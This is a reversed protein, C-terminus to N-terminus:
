PQQGATPFPRVRYVIANNAEFAVELEDGVMQEFAALGDESSYYDPERGDEVDGVITLREVDSVVIYEVAYRRLLYHKRELDSSQYIERVDSVRIGTEAGGRQQSQHSDWGLVTPLGTASSIRAGGGRYAGISAELIVPVGDIERNMWEIVAADGSFDIIDGAQNQITGGDMWANGSLSPFQPTSEMRTGLRDPTAFLLYTLLPVGLLLAIAVPPVTRPLSFRNGPQLLPGCRYWFRHFLWLLALGSVVALLTWSQFFLKFVTNMREWDTGDLHDAIYILDTVMVLGSASAGSIGVLVASNRSRNALLMAIFASVLVASAAAVPRVLALAGAIAIFPAVMLLPFDSNEQKRGYAALNIILASAGALILGTLVFRVPGSSVGNVIAGVLYSGTALIAGFVLSTLRLQENRLVRPFAMGAVLLIPLLLGGFHLFWSSLETGSSTTEPSGTQAVFGEYFRWFLGYGVLGTAIAVCTSIVIRHRLDRTRRFLPFALSALLIVAATPGDWLNSVTLSGAAIGASLTWIVIWQYDSTATNAIWSYGIALVLVLVPAAILHPHLDGYLLTFYPFENIGFDVVRSSAWFDVEFARNRIMQRIPDLNGAVLVTAATLGGGAILWRQNRTQLVSRGLAVGLSFLGSATLGAVTSLSLQFAIEAPVGTLNWLFALLFFGYYYYNIAGDAFWPDYPPYEGTQAIAHIYATEMPKEGGFFPHWLDPYIARLTLVFGFGILFALLSGALIWRCSRIRGRWDLPLGIVGWNVLAFLVISSVALLPTLRAIEFSWLLWAIAGAGLMGLLPSFGVGFDDFRQFLRVAVPLSSVALSALGILWFLISVPPFGTLASSWIASENADRQGVPEALRLTPSDPYRQPIQPQAAARAFRLDIEQRSIDEVKRFIRVPPHDYVSFSEDAGLTNIRLSGFGPYNTAEHALEFGLKEEELLRYYASQVPYRWPSRPISHSLRQSALIIYDADNLFEAVYGVAEENPRDTYLDLGLYNYIDGSGAQLRVPLRDDWIEHTITSGPEVNEYIWGSAAVRPHTGTYVSMFMLAWILTVGTVLAIATVPLARLWLRPDMASSLWWISLQHGVILALPPVLPAAYRLFRAESSAIVCFYPIIWSLLLLYRPDRKRLAFSVGVATAIIAAVGFGPAIGWLVLNQIENIGSITGVFQRTFPVDFEGNVIDWQRRIDDIFPGPRWLAYPEFVLFVAATPIAALALRRFFLVAAARRDATIRWAGVSMAVLIPIALVGVSVKTALAAGGLAAAILTWRLAAGQSVQYAAYLTAIAFFTVWTDVTFFHALQILVVSFATLAGALAAALEGFAQRAFLIVLAVTGLDVLATLFRGFEGVNSYTLLDTDSLGGIITGLITAVLFPLSGYAFERPNGAEDNSRTNLPSHAPDFLQGIESVHPLSLRSDMVTAIFREDPHFYHGDDWNQGTFRLLAALILIFAVAIRFRTEGPNAALTDDTM